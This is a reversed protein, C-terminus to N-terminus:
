AALDFKKQDIIKEAETLMNSVDVKGENKSLRLFAGYEEACLRHYQRKQHPNYDEKAKKWKKHPSEVVSRLGQQQSQCPWNRFCRVM